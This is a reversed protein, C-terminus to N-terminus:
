HTRRKALKKAIEDVILKEIRREEAIYKDVIKSDYYQRAQPWDRWPLNTKSSNFAGKMAVLNDPMNVIELQEEWSLMEFGRFQSETTIRRIAVIHDPAIHDKTLDVKFNGIKDYGNALRVVDRCEKRNRAAAGLKEHYELTSDRLAREARAAAAELTSKELKAGELADKLDEERARKGAFAGRQRLDRLQEELSMVENTARRLAEQANDYEAAFDRKKAAAAAEEQKRKAAAEEEQKRKAAAEEELKRKREAEAAKRRQEALELERKQREYERKKALIKEAEEANGKSKLLADRTEPNDGHTKLFREVKRWKVLEKAVKATGWTAAWLAIEAATGVLVSALGVSAHEMQVVSNASAADKLAGALDIAAGIVDVGFEILLVLDVAINLGPIKQAVIIGFMTAIMQLWNDKIAEYVERGAASFYNREWAWVLARWISEFRGTGEIRADVKAIADWLSQVDDKPWDYREGYITRYFRDPFQLRLAFITKNMDGTSAAEFAQLKFQFIKKAGKFADYEDKDVVLDGKEINERRHDIQWKYWHVIGYHAQARQSHWLARSYREMVDDSLRRAHEVSLVRGVLNSLNLGRAEDKTLPLGRDWVEDSLNVARKLVENKASEMTRALEDTDASTEFESRVKLSWKIPFAAGEALLLDDRKISREAAELTDEEGHAIIKECQAIFEKLDSRTKLPTNPGFYLLIFVRRAYAREDFPIDVNKSYVDWDTQLQQLEKALQAEIDGAVPVTVTEGGKDYSPLGYGGNSLRHPDFPQHNSAFTERAHAHGRESLTRRAQEIRAAVARILAEGLEDLQSDSM